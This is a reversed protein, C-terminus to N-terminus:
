KGSSIEWISIMGNGNQNSVPQEIRVSMKPKVSSFTRNDIIQEVKGEYYPEQPSPLHNVLIKIGTATLGEHASNVYIYHGLLTKGFDKIKGKVELLVRLTEESRSSGSREDQDYMIRSEISYIM